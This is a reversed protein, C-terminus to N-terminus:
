ASEDSQGIQDIKGDLRSLGKRNAKIERFFSRIAPYPLVLLLSIILYIIALYQPPDLLAFDVTFIVSSLLYGYMLYYIWISWSHGLLIPISFLAVTILFAFGTLISPTLSEIGLIFVGLVGLICILWQMLCFILILIRGRKARPSLVLDRNLIKM